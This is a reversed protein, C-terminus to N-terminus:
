PSNGARKGGHSAHRMLKRSEAVEIESWSANSEGRVEEEDLPPPSANDRDAPLKEAPEISLVKGNADLRLDSAPVPRFSASSKVFTHLESGEVCQFPRDREFVHAPKDDVAARNNSDTPEVYDAKVLRSPLLTMGFKNVHARAWGIRDPGDEAPHYRFVPHTTM